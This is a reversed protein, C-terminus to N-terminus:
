ASLRSCVNLLDLLTTIDPCMRLSFLALGLQEHHKAAASGM